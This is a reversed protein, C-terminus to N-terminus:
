GATKLAFGHNLDQFIALVKANESFDKGVCFDPRALSACDDGSTHQSRQTKLSRINASSELRSQRWTVSQQGSSRAPVGPRGSRQPNPVSNGSPASAFAAHM